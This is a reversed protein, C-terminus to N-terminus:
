YGGPNNIVLPITDGGTTTVTLPTTTTSEGASLTETTGDANQVAVEGSVVNLTADGSASVAVTIQDGASLTAISGNISVNVTDSGTASIDATGSVVTITSGSPIAPIPQGPEVIVVAGDPMTISITGTANQVSIEALLSPSLSFFLIFGAILIRQSLKLGSRTNM